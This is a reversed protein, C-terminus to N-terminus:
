QPPANFYKQLISKVTEYSFKTYDYLFIGMVEVTGYIFNACVVAEVVEGTVLGVNVLKPMMSFTTDKYKLSIGVLLNFIEELKGEAFVNKEAPNIWLINKEKLEKELQERNM